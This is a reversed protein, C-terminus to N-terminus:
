PASMAEQGDLLTVVMRSAVIMTTRYESQLSVSEM